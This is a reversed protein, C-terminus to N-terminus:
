EKKIYKLIQEKDEYKLLVKILTKINSNADKLMHQLGIITAADTKLKKEIEERVQKITIRKFFICKKIQVSWSVKGSSLILYDPIGTKVTLIGGTRFKLENDKYEFYRLHTGTQINKLEDLSKIQEYDILLEKVQEKSLKDTYTLPPRKYNTDSIRNSIKQSSEKNEKSPNLEDLNIETDFNITMDSDKINIIKTKSTKNNMNTIKSPILKEDSETKFNKSKLPKKIKSEM